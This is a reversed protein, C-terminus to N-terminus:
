AGEKAIDLAIILQHQPNGTRSLTIGLYTVKDKASLGPILSTETTNIQKVRIEIDDYNESTTVTEDNNFRWHLTDYLHKTLELGGGTTILLENWNNAADELQENIVKPKNVKWNNAYLRKDDVFAIIIKKWKIKKNSSIIKCGISSKELTTMLPVSILTYSTGSSRAGQGQGYNKREETYTYSTTSTGLVTKIYYKSNNLTKTHLTCVQDLVRIKRSNLISHSPIMHDFCGIADNQFICMICYIMRHCETNMEDIRAVNDANCLTRGGM